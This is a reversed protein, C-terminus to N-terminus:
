RGIAGRPAAQREKMAQPKPGEIKEDSWGGMEPSTNWWGGSQQQREVPRTYRERQPRAQIVRVTKSQDMGVKNRRNNAIRYWGNKANVIGGSGRGVIFSGGGPADVRLYPLCFNSRECARRNSPIAGGPCGIALLLRSLRTFFLFWYDVAISDKNTCDRTHRSSVLSICQNQFVVVHQICAVCEPLLAGMRSFTSCYGRM